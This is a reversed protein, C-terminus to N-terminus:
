IREEAATWRPNEARCGRTEWGSPLSVFACVTGGPFSVWCPAESHAPPGVDGLDGIKRLKWKRGHSLHRPTQWARHRRQSSGSIRTVSKGQAVRPRDNGSQVLASAGLRLRSRCCGRSLPGRAGVSRFACACQLRWLASMRQWASGPVQGPLVSGLFSGDRTVQASGVAGGAPGGSFPVSRRPGQGEKRLALNVSQIVNNVVSHRLSVWVRVPVCAQVPM